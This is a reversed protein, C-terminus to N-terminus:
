TTGAKRTSATSSCIPITAPSPFMPSSTAPARSSRWWRAAGTASPKRPWRKCSSTSRCSRNNGPAAPTRSLTRVARGGASVEVEEYGTTGHLQKEYSKELGEKGIHDTGSYNAADDTDDIAKAESQNIRGIFGIVHSAIEGLPYQRFLRAQIEVGPFRFRQATFRAVEEDSLRTRLPVSEFNKSEELLKKFRKRDKVEITILHSLDDITEDLTANLKSPTVELTYASYNRALVVGNRDLILGRNPVIPVVAIRNDEAQAAYDSHKVIQLWVFRALLLAFCLFVMGGLVTLRLRFLHLERETNKLETM